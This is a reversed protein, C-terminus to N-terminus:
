SPYFRNAMVYEVGLLLAIVVILLPFLEWGVRGISVDREIQSRDRAIRFDQEGFLAELGELSIRDMQTKEPPLNVSFGLDVGSREGGARVRYNGLRDTSSISLSRQQPEASVSFKLDGPALVLYSQRQSRPPLALVATQGADYNMQQDTSGVLYLTMQNSLIVFPWANGVPLLNWAYRDPRDSVPTTMTLVRGRGVPRELLAPEGDTYRMLVGAGEAVDDLKWYRYVPFAEWPVSGAMEGLPALVPHQWRGTAIHLGGDPYRAQMALKGPLLEQAEDANFSDVPRANRGLFIALGGGGSVYDGLARWAAPSLPKPDLLCV